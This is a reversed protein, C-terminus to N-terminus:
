FALHSRACFDDRPIAKLGNARWEGGTEEVETGLLKSEARRHPGAIMGGRPTNGSNHHIQDVLALLSEPALNDRVVQRAKAEYIRVMRLVAPDYRVEPEAQLIVKLLKEIESTTILTEPEIFGAARTLDICALRMAEISALSPRLEKIQLAQKIVEIAISLRKSGTEGGLDKSARFVLLIALDETSLLSLAAL